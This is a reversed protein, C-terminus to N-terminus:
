PCCPCARLEQMMQQNLGCPLIILIYIQECDPWHDKLIFLLKFFSRQSRHCHTTLLRRDVVLRWFLSNPLVLYSGYNSFLLLYYTFHLMVSKSFSHQKYKKRRWHILFCIHSVGGARCFLLSSTIYFWKSTEGNRFKNPPVRAAVFKTKVCTIILSLPYEKPNPCLRQCSLKTNTIM